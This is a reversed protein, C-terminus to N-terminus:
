SKEGVKAKFRKKAQLSRGVDEYKGDLFMDIDSSVWGLRALTSRLVEEDRAESFQQRVGESKSKKKKRGDFM